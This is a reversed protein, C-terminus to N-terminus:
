TTQPVPHARLPHQPSISLALSTCLSAPRNCQTHLPPHAPLTCPSPLQDCSTPVPLPAPFPSAPSTLASSGIPHIVQTCALFNWARSGNSEISHRTLNLCPPPPPPPSPTTPAQHTRNVWGEVTGDDRGGGRGLLSVFRGLGAGGTKLAHCHAPIVSARPPYVFEGAGELMGWAIGQVAVGNGDFPPECTGFAHAVEAASAALLAAFGERVHAVCAASGIARFNATVQARWAYQDVMGVYGRLPASSAWAADM